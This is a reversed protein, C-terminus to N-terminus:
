TIWSKRRQKYVIKEQGFSTLLICHEESDSGGEINKVESYNRPFLCLERNVQDQFELMLNVFLKSKENKDLWVNKGIPVIEYHDDFLNLQDFNNKVENFGGNIVPGDNGHHIDINPFKKEIIKKLVNLEADALKTKTRLNGFPFNYFNDVVLVDDDKTEITSTEGNPEILVWTWPNVEDDTSLIEISLKQALTKLIEIRERLTLELNNNDFVSYHFKFGETSTELSIYTKQKDVDNDIIFENFNTIWIFQNSNFTENLFLEFLAKDLRQTTNFYIRENM